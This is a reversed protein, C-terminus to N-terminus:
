LGARQVAAVLTTFRSDSQALTVINDGMPLVPDPDDDSCSFAVVSLMLLFIGTLKQSMRIIKHM